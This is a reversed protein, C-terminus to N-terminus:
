RMALRIREATADLTSRERERGYHEGFRFGFGDGSYRPVVHLHVHFVHQMAAEGDSLILNVGECRVGSRRLAAAVAHAVRKLHAASEVDMEALFGAHANPIILVHGENVPRTDLFATCREDQHVISAPSTGALIRCFICEMM